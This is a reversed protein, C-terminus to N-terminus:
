EGIFSTDWFYSEVPVKKKIYGNELMYNATQELGYVKTTYTNNPYNLYRLVEENSLKEIKAIANITEKDKTNILGITKDIAKIINEYKEKKNYLQKNVLCIVSAKYEIDSSNLISRAGLEREKEMYPLPTFHGKIDTNNILASFADPNSMVVINKDLKKADGLFKKAGMSLMMQNNSIAGPVAIKDNEKFDAISKISDDIVMLETPTINLGFGVKVTNYNKSLLMLAPPIGMCGIDLHGGALAEAIAAGGGFKQKQIEIGPLFEKFIGLESAVYIPAYVTSFQEAIRIKKNDSIKKDEKDSCSLFVFVIFLGFIVKKIM